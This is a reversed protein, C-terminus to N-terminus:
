LRGIVKHLVSAGDDVVSSLSKTAKTLLSHAKQKAVARSKETAAASTNVGKRLLSAAEDIMKLASSAVKDERTSPTPKPTKKTSLTKNARPAKTKAKTTKTSKRATSPKKKTTAM